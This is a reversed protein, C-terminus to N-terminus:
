ETDTLNTGQVNENFYLVRVYPHSVWFTEIKRFILMIEIRQTRANNLTYKDTKNMDRHKVKRCLKIFIGEM